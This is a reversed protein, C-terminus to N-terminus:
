RLRRVEQNNPRLNDLQLSSKASTICLSWRRSDNSYLHLWPIRCPCILLPASLIFHLDVSSSRPSPLFVLLIDSNSLFLSFLTLHYDPFSRLSLSPPSLTCLPQSFPFLSLSTFFRSFETHQHWNGPRAARWVTFELQQLSFLCCPSQCSIIGSLSPKDRSWSFM